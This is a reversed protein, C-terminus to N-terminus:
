DGADSPKWGIACQTCGVVIEKSHDRWEVEEGALAMWKEFDAADDFPRTDEGCNPCDRTKVSVGFGVGTM